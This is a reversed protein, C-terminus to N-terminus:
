SGSRTAYGVAKGFPQCVHGHGTGLETGPRDSQDPILLLGYAPTGPAASAAAAIGFLALAAVLVDLRLSGADPGRTLWAGAVLLAVAYAVCVRTLSTAKSLGGSV